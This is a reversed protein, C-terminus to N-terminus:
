VKKGEREIECCTPRQLVCVTRENPSKSGAKRTVSRKRRLAEIFFFVGFSAQAM